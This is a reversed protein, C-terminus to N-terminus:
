FAFKFTKYECAPEKMSEQPKQAIEVQFHFVIIISLLACHPDIYMAAAKASFLCPFRWKCTVVKEDNKRTQEAEEFESLQAQVSNSPVAKLSLIFVFNNWETGLIKM